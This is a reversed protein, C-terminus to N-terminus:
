AANWFDFLPRFSACKRLAAVSVREAIKTNHIANIYRRSKGSGFWVIETLKGKPDSINETKPPINPAKKLKFVEKVAVPDALLWAEIEEVPIVILHKAVPSPNLARELSGRLSKLVKRDLDHVLLLVTCGSSALQEAWARCKSHLKGCGNGVFRKVAFTKRPAIKHLITAVVEVDSSDEAIIGLRIVEKSAGTDGFNM